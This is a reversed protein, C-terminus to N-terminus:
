TGMNRIFWEIKLTQAEIRSISYTIHAALPVLNDPARQPVESYEEPLVSVLRSSLAMISQELQSCVYELHNAANHVQYEREVEVEGKNEYKTSEALQKRHTPLKAM